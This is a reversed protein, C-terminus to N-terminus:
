FRSEPLCRAVDVVLEDKSRLEAAFYAKVGNIGKENIIREIRTYTVPNKDQNLFCEFTRKKNYVLMGTDNLTVQVKLVMSRGTPVNTEFRKKTIAPGRTDLPSHPVM